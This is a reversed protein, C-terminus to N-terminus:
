GGLERGPTRNGREPREPVATRRGSERVKKLLIHVTERRLARLNRRSMEARAPTRRGLM